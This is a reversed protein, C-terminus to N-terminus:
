DRGSGRGVKSSSGLRLIKNRQTESWSFFIRPDLKLFLSKLILMRLLEHTRRINRSELGRSTLKEGEFGMCSHPALM